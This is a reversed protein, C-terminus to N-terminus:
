IVIIKGNGFFKKLFFGRYILPNKHQGDGTVWEGDDRKGRFLHRENM